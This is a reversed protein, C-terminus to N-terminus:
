GIACHRVKRAIDAYRRESLELRGCACEQLIYECHAIKREIGEIKNELDELQERQGDFDYWSEDM